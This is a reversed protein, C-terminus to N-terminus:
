KLVKKGNIIYVGKPLDDVTTASSRVKRGDLSYVDCTQGSDFLISNISSTGIVLINTFEGWVPASKYVEVCGEPVYLICTNKDVGEFVNSGGRTRSASSFAIPTTSNVTISKLYSCGAFASEGISTITSPITVDTLNTNNEFAANGISTVTYTVGEYTITEPIDYEGSVNNDNSLEVTSGSTTTFEGTDEDIVIASFSGTITVDKAPMTSPIDSWGSFTYGDKTPAPEPTITEGEELEYSKYEEGDVVYKLTYKPIDLKEISKFEKWPFVSSYSNILSERVHLTAYQIYSNEFIYNTGTQPIEYTYCYFDMLSGCNSFAWDEIHTVGKGITISKLNDCGDFAKAGIKKVSNPIDINSIETCGSFAYQGIKEIDDSIKTTNGGRIITNSKTIIIANCNNRSDYVPNDKSVSISNINGCNIFAAYNLDTLSAPINLSTLSKCGKFACFGITAINPPLESFCLSSCGLFAYDCIETLGKPFQISELNKCGAFASDGIKVINDHFVVTRLNVLRMFTGYGITTISQPITIDEIENDNLFLHRAYNLPSSGFSIKCWAELNTIHVTQLGDNRSFAGSYITTITEPIWIDTISFNYSFADGEIISVTYIEGEVNITEPIKVEGSYYIEGKTVGAQMAKPILHYYIGDVEVDYACVEIPLLLLILFILLKKM